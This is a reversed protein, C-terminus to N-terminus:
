ERLVGGQEIIAANGRLRESPELVGNRGIVGCECARRLERRRQDVLRRRENLEITGLLSQLGATDRKDVLRAIDLRLAIGALAEHREAPITLGLQNEPVDQRPYGVAIKDLDIQCM